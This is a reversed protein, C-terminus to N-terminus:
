QRGRSVLGVNVFLLRVIEFAQIPVCYMSTVHLSQVNEKAIVPKELERHGADLPCGAVPPVVISVRFVAARGDPPGSFISTPTASSSNDCRTRWSIVLTLLVRDGLPLDDQLGQVGCLASV